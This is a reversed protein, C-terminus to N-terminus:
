KMAKEHNGTGGKIRSSPFVNGAVYRGNVYFLFGTYRGSPFLFSVHFSVKRHRLINM